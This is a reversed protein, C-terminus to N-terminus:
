EDMPRGDISGSRHPASLRAGVMRLIERVPQVHQLGVLPRDEGSRRLGAFRHAEQM